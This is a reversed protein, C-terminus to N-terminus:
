RLVKSPYGYDTTAAVLAEIETQTPDYTVTATKTLMSVKADHVGPTGMLAQKVFYACSSCWMGDVKLKATRLNEQTPVASSSATTAASLQPSVAALFNSNALLVGGTLLSVGFLVVAATRNM